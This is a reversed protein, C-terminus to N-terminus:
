QRLGRLFAQYKMEKRGEPKVRDITFVNNNLHASTILVRLPKGLHEAFYYIGPNPTFALFKRYNLNADDELKIEGDEKKVKKTFTAVTHDQELAKIEGKVWKPLIEALMDSGITALQDRLQVFNTNPDLAIKQQALIPGHDVQEDILMISVGTEKDSNLITTQLPSAGRHKPLLSPHVNITGFKPKDLVEKKLIKGYSAVVYMDANKPIDSTTTNIVQKPVLGHKALGKLVGDAFEDLGFFVFDLMTNTTTIM